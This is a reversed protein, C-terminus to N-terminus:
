AAVSRRVTYWWVYSRLAYGCAESMFHNSQACFPWQSNTTVTTRQGSLPHEPKEPGTQKKSASPIM